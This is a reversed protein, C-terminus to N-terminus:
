FYMRVYVGRREVGPQLRCWWEEVRLSNGIVHDNEPSSQRSAKRRSFFKSKISAGTKHLGPAVAGTAERGRLDPGSDRYEIHPPPSKVAIQRNFSSAKKPM